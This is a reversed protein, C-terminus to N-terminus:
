DPKLESPEFQYSHSKWKSAIGIDYGCMLSVDVVDMQNIDTYKAAVITALHRALAENDINNEKLTVRTYISNTTEKDSTSNITVNKNKSVSANSINPQAMLADRVATLDTFTGNTAPQQTYLPLLASITIIIAVVILHARRLQGIGHKNVDKNIVYTKALLDHPVQKTAKNFIFLYLTSLIGGFIILTVPYILIAQINEDPFSIGNLFFPLGLITYRLLSRGIDIPAENTGVVQIGLLKKGITQGNTQRSNGIGFYLLAISFGILRGWSGLQVFISEFVLGLLQGIVGLILIDIIFAGIRLSRSTLYDERKTATMYNEYLDPLTTAPLSAALIATPMVASTVINFKLGLSNFSNVSNNPLLAWVKINVGILIALLEYALSKTIPVTNIGPAEAGLSTM